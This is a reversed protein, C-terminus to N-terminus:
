PGNQRWSRFLRVEWLYKELTSAEREERVLAQQFSILQDNTLVYGAM